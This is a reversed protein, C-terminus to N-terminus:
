FSAEFGVSFGRGLDRQLGGALVYTYYWDPEATRSAPAEDFSGSFSGGIQFRLDPNNREDGLEPDKLPEPWGKAEALDRRLVGAEADIAINAHPATNVIQFKTIGTKIYKEITTVRVDKKGYAYVKGDQGPGGPDGGEPIFRWSASFEGSWAPGAEVLANMSTIAFQQIGQAVKRNVKKMLENALSKEMGGGKFRAM